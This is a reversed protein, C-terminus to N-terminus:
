PRPHRRTRARASRSRHDPGGLHRRRDAGNAAGAVSRPDPGARFRRRVRHRLLARSGSHGAYGDLRDGAPVPRRLSRPLEPGAGFRVALDPLRAGIGLYSAFQQRLRPVEIPQNIFAHKLGLATAQLAFRQCARGAEIWHAKDNRESVFVAVGTSSQIHARYKDNGGSETFVLPLLLRALWAPLAPNGSSRAFLGDMTSVADAENFRMWGKLEDLFAKDRMQATNGEVVYDIVNAIKVRDTIVLVSVGDGTGAQELLRLTEGAVPKGDYAARTSQRRPIADVLASALPPARELMIAIADAEVALSAKLGTAAAAHVLNEAACGLSAFVHHDDPDVAPCRRAFDPAITIRDAEITFKWPQTNHSNAALTAYRVLERSGGDARLPAWTSRVAEDYSM